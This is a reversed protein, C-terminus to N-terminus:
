WKWYKELQFEPNNLNDNIMLSVFKSPFFKKLATRRDYDSMSWVHIPTDFRNIWEDFNYRLISVSHEKGFAFVIWKRIVDKTPKIMLIVVM